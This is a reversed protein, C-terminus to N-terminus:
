CGGSEALVGALTQELEDTGRFARLQAADWTGLLRGSDMLVLGDCYGMVVDLAHTALLISLGERAVRERLHVKLKLASRVDLGNFIEDLLLLPPGTLLALVVSLKQRTGLSLESILVDEFAALGLDRCLAACREPVGSMGHASCYIELGQRVTLFPPLDEPPVAFGPLVARPDQLPYLSREEFRVEGRLPGLRGAACRLMTTKGSANPGVLAVWQGRNVQLEAGHVVVRGGYGLDVGKFQLVTHNM